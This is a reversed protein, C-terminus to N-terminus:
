KSSSCEACRALLRPLDEMRSFSLCSGTSSSEGEPMYKLVRMGASLAAQVGVESDEVVVCQWPEFGMSAAAHLFLGPEPKWSGVEYSSFIRDGFYTALGTHALAKAIKARPGSSAICRPSSTVQLMAEVGVIPQLDSEFLEAVRERYRAEFESPLRRRIRSEIDAVIASLKRGRYRVVLSAVSDSLEPLLDLLAQNCLEESDVLTGDLDFITCIETVV